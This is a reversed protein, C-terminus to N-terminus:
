QYVAFGPRLIIYGWKQQPNIRIQLSIKFITRLEEFTYRGVKCNQVCMSSFHLFFNRRSCPSHNFISLIKRMISHSTSFRVKLEYIRLFFCFFYSVIFKRKKKILINTEKMKIHFRSTLQVFGVPQSEEQNTVIRLRKTRKLISHARWVSKLERM